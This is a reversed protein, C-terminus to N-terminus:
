IRTVLITKKVSCKLCCTANQSNDCLCVTINRVRRCMRALTNAARAHITTYKFPGRRSFYQRRPRGVVFACILMSIQATQDAGKYNTKQIISDARKIVFM